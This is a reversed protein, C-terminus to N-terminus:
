PQGRLSQLLNKDAHGDPVFGKQTQYAMIARQTQEGLHGDVEGVDYGKSKLRSQIEEQELPSLHDLAAPWQGVLPGGGYLRDGLHLASLAYADSNNYRKVVKFNSTLLFVPGHRGVPLYLRASANLQPLPEGNAKMLGMDAWTSLAHSASGWAHFGSPLRVEFGWPLGTVWGHEKLYNATSALADPVSTWINRRGDGTIDVAYRLFSTPMFQTQGMGGDWSGRMDAPSVDGAQLIRLAALLEQRFFAKRHSAYALTALARIVSFNGINKGFNSEMGWVGLIVRQDVGYTQELTALTGQWEKLAHAGRELRSPSVAKAVREGFPIPAAKYRQSINIVKPDFTLGQLANQFTTQTIGQRQAEPWLNKLFVSFQPDRIASEETTPLSKVSSSNTPTCAALFVGVCLFIGQMGVPTRKNGSKIM